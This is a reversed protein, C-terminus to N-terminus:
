QYRRERVLVGDLYVQESLRTDGDWSIRLVMEGDKYLEETKLSGEGYVTVTALSGRLFYEERSVRGADDVTYRWTELGDASRRTKVTVDGRDNRRYAVTETVAGKTTTAQSVIRGEADYIREIVTEEGPRKETSSALSDSDTQFRFDIRSIVLGGTSQESCALRGRADYRDVYVSEGVTSRSEALGTSGMIWASMRADDPAGVRRVERLSGNAAYLYEESYKTDGGADVLRKRVLRTGAYSLLAKEALVGADYSEEQLLLGSADYVRRAVLTDGTLEREVKQAGAKAWAIEWRRVEAGKDFLRRVESGDDTQVQMVWDYQGRMYPEIPQLLMGFDNSRYLRTETIGNAAALLFLLFAAKWPRLSQMM